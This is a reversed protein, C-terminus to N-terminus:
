AAASLTSEHNASIGPRSRDPFGRYRSSFQLDPRRQFARFLSSSHAGTHYIGPLRPHGAYEVRAAVGDIKSKRWSIPFQIPTNLLSSFDFANDTFKWFYDGDVVSSNRRSVARPRPQISEKQRAPNPRQRIRRLREPLDERGQQARFCWTKTIHRKSREQTPPASSQALKRSSTPHASEPSCEPPVPFAM